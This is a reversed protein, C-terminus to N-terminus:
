SLGDLQELASARESVMRTALDKTPANTVARVASKAVRESEALHAEVLEVFTADFDSTASLGTLEAETTMGPMDHGQHINLVPVSAADLLGRLEALETRRDAAVTAAFARLRPSAARKAGLDLLKVAQDDTAVELQVFAQETAGFAGPPGSPVPQATPATAGAQHGCAALGLVLVVAPALGIGHRVRSTMRDARVYLLDGRMADGNRRHHAM